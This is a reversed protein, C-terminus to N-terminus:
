NKLKRSALNRAESYVDKIPVGEKESLSKCSEYEPSINILEGKFYALKVKVGGWRTSIMRIEREAKVRSVPYFRVGITTTERMLIEFARETLSRPLLISILTGTRNKKMQVPRKFVELAGASYLKEEVPPILEPNIDDIKTEMMVLNESEDGPLRCISARLFNPNDLEKKGFGRGTSEIVCDPRCFSEAYNYLIAAGTPTVLEGKEGTSYIPAESKELLKSTAPAPVPLVGHRTNVRGTGTNIPASYLRDLGLREMALAAGVIDAISDVAGVEHFHVDEKNTGHISAEVEALSDFIKLSGEIVNEKLKSNEILDKIDALSRSPQEEKTVVSFSRGTIGHKKVKETKVKVGSPLFDELEEIFEERELGCDLLSALFMDGSIGSFPDLYLIREAM